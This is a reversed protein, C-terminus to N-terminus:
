DLKWVILSSIDNHNASCYKVLEELQTRDATKASEGEEKFVKIVDLNHHAAYNRCAEEQNELSKNMEAQEVTSVRTYIVAKM